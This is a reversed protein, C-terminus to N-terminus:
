ILRIRNKDYAGNQKVAEPVVPVDLRVVEVLLGDVVPEMGLVVRGTVVVVLDVKVGVVVLLRGHLVSVM